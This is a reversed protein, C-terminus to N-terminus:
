LFFNNCVKGFQVVRKLKYFMIEAVVDVEADRRGEIPQQLDILDGYKTANDLLLAQNASKKIEFLSKCFDKYRYELHFCNETAGVGNYVRISATRPRERM